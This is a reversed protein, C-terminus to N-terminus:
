EKPKKLDDLLDQTTSPNMVQTRRKNDDWGVDRGLEDVERRMHVMFRAHNGIVSDHEELREDQSYEKVELGIVRGEVDEQDDKLAEIRSELRRCFLIFLVLFLGAVATFLGIEKLHLRVFALVTPM